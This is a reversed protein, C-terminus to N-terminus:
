PVRSSLVILDNQSPDVSKSKLKFQTLGEAVITLKAISVEYAALLQLPDDTVLHDFNNKQDLQEQLLTEQIKQHAKSASISGFDGFAFQDKNLFRDIDNAKNRILESWLQYVEKSRYEM